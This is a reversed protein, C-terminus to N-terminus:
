MFLYRSELVNRHSTFSFLLFNVVHLVDYDKCRFLGCRPLLNGSVGLLLLSFCSPSSCNHGAISGPTCSSPSPSPWATHHTLPICKESVIEAGASIAGNGPCAWRRCVRKTTQGVKDFGLLFCVLITIAWKERESESCREEAQGGASREGRREGEERERGECRSSECGCKGASSAFNNM